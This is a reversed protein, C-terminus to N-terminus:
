PGPEGFVQAVAFRHGTYDVLREGSMDSQYQKVRGMDAEALRQRLKTPGNGVHELKELLALRNGDLQERKSATTNALHTYKV